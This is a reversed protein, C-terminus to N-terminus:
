EAELVSLNNLAAAMGANTASRVEDQRAGAGTLLPGTSVFPAAPNDATSPM